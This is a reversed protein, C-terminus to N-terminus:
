RHIRGCRQSPSPGSGGEQKEPDTERQEEEEGGRAEDAKLLAHNSSPPSFRDRERGRPQRFFTMLGFIVM